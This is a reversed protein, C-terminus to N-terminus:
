GEEKLSSALYDTALNQDLILDVTTKTNPVKVGLDHVLRTTDLTTYRPLHELFMRSTQSPIPQVLKLDTGMKEALRSVLQAYTIDREGSVQIIGSPRQEAVRSLVEIVLSLPLPSVVKDSFPHIVKKNQLSEIWGQLLRMDPGFIKTLRVVSSLSGLGLIRKEAEAKQRGHETQPCLPADAKVFPVTGDFVLNTSLFVVFTGSQALREALKVTQDVNVRTTKVSECRCYELSNFAACFFAVSINEPLRNFSIEQELDLFIKDELRAEMRRSTGLVNKGSRKLSESLAGGILSDAGIILVQDNDRTDSIKKGKETM